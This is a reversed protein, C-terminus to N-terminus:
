AGVVAFAVRLAVEVISLSGMFVAGSAACVRHNALWESRDLRRLLKARRKPNSCAEIEAKLQDLKNKDALGKYFKTPILIAKTPM